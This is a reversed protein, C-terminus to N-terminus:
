PLCCPHSPVCSNSASNALSARRVFGAEVVIFALEFEMAIWSVACKELYSLLHAEAFGPDLSRRCTSRSSPQGLSTAFTKADARFLLLQAM